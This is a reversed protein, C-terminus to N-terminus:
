KNYLYNVLKMITKLETISIELMASIEEENFGHKHWKDIFKLYDFELPQLSMRHEIKTAINKCLNIQNIYEETLFTVIKFEDLDIKRWVQKLNNYNEHFDTDSLDEIKTKVENCIQEVIQETCKGITSIAKKPISRERLINIIYKREELIIKRNEDNLKTLEPLVEKEYTNQLERSRFLIKIDRLNEM